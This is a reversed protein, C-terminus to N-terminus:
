RVSEKFPTDFKPQVTQAVKPDDTVFVVIENEMTIYLTSGNLLKIEKRVRKNM